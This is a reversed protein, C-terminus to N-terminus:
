DRDAGYGGLTHQRLAARESEICRKSGTDIDYFLKERKACLLALRCQCHAYLHEAVETLQEPLGAVTLRGVVGSNAAHLTARLWVVAEPDLKRLKNLTKTSIAREFAPTVSSRGPGQKFGGRQSVMSRPRSLTSRQGGTWPMSGQTAQLSSVTSTGTGPPQSKEEELVGLDTKQQVKVPKTDPAEITRPTFSNFLAAQEEVDVNFVGTPEKIQVDGKPLDLNATPNGDRHPPKDWLTQALLRAREHAQMIDEVRDATYFPVASAQYEANVYEMVLERSVLAEYHQGRLSLHITREGAAECTPSAVGLKQDMQWVVLNVGLAIGLTRLEPHDSWIAGTHLGELFSEQTVHQLEGGQAQCTALGLQLLHNYEPDNYFELLIGLVAKAMGPTGFLGWSLSAALCHGNGKTQLAVMDEGMQQGVSQVLPSSEASLCIELKEKQKRQYKANLCRKSYEEQLQQAIEANRSQLDRQAGLEMKMMEVAEKFIEDFAWNNIVEQLEAPANIWNRSLVVVKTLFVKNDGDAVNQLAAAVKQSEPSTFNGAIQSLDAYQGLVSPHACLQSVLASHRDMYLDVVEVTQFEEDNPGANRTTVGTQACLTIWQTWEDEPIIYAMMPEGNSDLIYWLRGAEIEADLQVLTMSSRLEDVVQTNLMEWQKFTNQQDVPTKHQLFPTWTDAPLEVATGQQEPTGIQQGIEPCIERPSRGRGNSNKHRYIPMVGGSVSGFAEVSTSFVPMDGTSGWGDGMEAIEVIEPVASGQALTPEGQMTQSESPAESSSNQSGEPSFQLARPAAGSSTSSANSPGGLGIESGTATRGEIPVGTWVDGATRSELPGAVSKGQVHLGEMEVGLARGSEGPALTSKQSPAISLAPLTGIETRSPQEENTPGELNMHMTIDELDEDTFTVPQTQAGQQQQQAGERQLAEARARATAAAEIEQQERMAQALQERLQQVKQRQVVLSGEPAEGEGEM